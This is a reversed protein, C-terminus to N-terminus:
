RKERMVLGLFCSQLLNLVAAMVSFGAAFAFLKVQPRLIGFSVLIVASEAAFTVALVLIFNAAAFRFASDYKEYRFFNAMDAMMVLVPVVLFMVALTVAESDEFGFNVLATVLFAILVAAWVAIYIIRRKEKSM